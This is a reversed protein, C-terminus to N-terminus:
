TNLCTWCRPPSAIHTGSSTSYIEKYYMYSDIKKFDYISECMVDSICKIVSLYVLLM